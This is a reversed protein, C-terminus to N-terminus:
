VNRAVAEFSGNPAYRAMRYSSSSHGSKLPSRFDTCCAARKQEAGNGSRRDGPNSHTFGVRLQRGRSAGRHPPCDRASDFAEAFSTRLIAISNLPGNSQTSRRM